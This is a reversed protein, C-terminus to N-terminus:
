QITAEIFDFSPRFCEFHQEALNPVVNEAFNVKDGQFAEWGARDNVDIGFHRELGPVDRFLLEITLRSEGGWTRNTVPNWVQERVSLGVPVPLLMAYGEQNPRKRVFGDELNRPIEEGLQVWDQFAEDFDFLCFLKRNNNNQYLRDRRFLNRMFGCDFAQVIEFPRDRQPNLKKWAIDIIAVDSVGETFLVPRTTAGVIQEINLVAEEESFTILGASLSNVISSKDRVTVSIGEEGFDFMRIEPEKSNVITSASHSSLMVHNTQAAETGAIDSVQKLFGFQWEPHLFSDPEDLLTVCNRDKFLETIAYIYVSQFQGDSFDGVQAVDGNALRLPISLGDFMGLTMLNDFSRFVESSSAGDFADVFLDLDIPISYAGKERDYISGPSFGDKICDTLRDLFERSIGKAGWLFTEPDAVDVAIKSAFGPRKLELTATEGSVEIMLKECLYRRAVCDEPQMLLVSLLLEKYEPGISIFKRTEDNEWDQSRSAFARAYRDVTRRITDNHGSYYILVNDPTPTQRVTKRARGNITFNGERLAIVTDAGDIEYTVEYDFGIEDLKTRSDFIHRFVEVLAEFFNSKGTGNKGVFIELFSEGDFTLSFDQLNKYNSIWISKLRM